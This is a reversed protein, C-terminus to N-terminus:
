TFTENLATKYLIDTNVCMESENVLSSAIFNGDKDNFLESISEAPQKKKKSKTTSEQVPKQWDLPKHRYMPWPPVTIIAAM